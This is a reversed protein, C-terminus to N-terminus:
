LPVKMEVMTGGGEAPLWECDGGVAALRQRMNLLGDKGPGGPEGPLGPLGPLGRGNDALRILFWGAQHRLTLAVESAAAHKVINQLAEKFALAVEHRSGARLPIDPWTPPEDILCAIGLPALYHGAHQVLFAALASLSDNRPNVTWVAEDLSEMAERACSNLAALDEAAAPPLPHERAFVDQLVALRALRAGVDDHMNRAIRSREAALASQAKLAAIRKRSHRRSALVGSLLTGGALLGLFAPTETFRTAVVLPVRHVSADWSGDSHRAQLALTRAGAPPCPLELRLTDSERWAEATEEWRWRFLQDQPKGRQPISMQLLLRQCDAPVRLPTGAPLARGDAEAFTLRVERTEYAELEALMPSLPVASESSIRLYRGRFDGSGDAARLVDAGGLAPYSGDQRNLVQWVAPAGNKPDDRYLHIRMRGFRDLNYPDGRQRLLLHDLTRQEGLDIEFHFDKGAVDEAPHALTSPWGDTLADPTMADFESYLPHTASVPAGLAVNTSTSIVEARFETLVFDRERSWAMVPEARGDGSRFVPLVDLRFATIRRGLTRATIWYLNDPIRGTVIPSTEDALLRNGPGRRLNCTTAGFNLMPLDTWESRLTPRPDSTYRLAFHAFSANPRGSMFFLTLNLLDAEVPEAAVFVASHAQELRPALSWGTPSTEFGDITRQLDEAPGAHFSAEAREFVVSSRARAPVIAAATALVLALIPLRATKPLM